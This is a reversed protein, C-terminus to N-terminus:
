PTTTTGTPTTETGVTGTTGGQITVEGGRDDDGCAGVGLALGFGAVGSVAVALWGRGRM